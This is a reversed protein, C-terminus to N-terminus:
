PVEDFGGKNWPHCSIVRKFSLFLGKWLGHKSFAQAAYESCTPVYRCAPMFFPSIIKQYIKISVLFGALIIKEIM